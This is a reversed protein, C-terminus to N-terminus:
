SSEPGMCAKCYTLGTRVHYRVTEGREIANECSDCLTGEDIVLKEFGDLPMEVGNVIKAFPKNKVIDSRFSEDLALWRKILHEPLDHDRLCDVMLKERYDFLEDSIVMWHHANKPRDGFFVKEATFLQRMFLYQKESSRQQTSNSFFGLLKEDKYVRSYFDDLIIKMKKGQDLAFWMEDDKDPYKKDTSRRGSEKESEVSSEARLDKYEISDSFLQNELLGSQLMVDYVAQNFDTSGTFFITHNDTKGSMDNKLVDIINKNITNTLTTNEVCATYYVNANQEALDIMNQHMYIDEDCKGGHYIFIDGKHQHQLADRAIGILPALGVGSGALVLTSSQNEVQSYHCEGIPGQLDIEDGPSVESFLWPSLQVENMKKIHFELFYDDPLSVLSYCRAMGDAQRRLNMYQGPKYYVAQAPEIVLKCISDSLAEHQHVVGTHYVDTYPIKKVSMDNNPKCVCPLFYNKQLYKDDIGKQSDAPIEGSDCHMMCVQCSGKRCSFALEVGQRHFAEIITENSRCSYSTNNFLIKYKTVETM